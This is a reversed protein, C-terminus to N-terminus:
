GLVFRDIAEAVGDNECDSVVFQAVGKVSEVANGMAVGIGAAAVLSVDNEYDGIALTAEIPIGWEAALWRLALGKSTASPALSVANHQYGVKSPFWRIMTFVGVAAASVTLRGVREQDAIAILAIVREVLELRDVPLRHVEPRNALFLESEPDAASVPGAIMRGGVAPSEYLIPSIEAEVSLAIGLRLHNSSLTREFIAQRASCDYVVTGDTLIVTAIGLRAAIPEVSQLRRGTALVVACGRDRAAQISAAVRPRVRGSLDLLTGDM